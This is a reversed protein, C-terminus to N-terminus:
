SLIRISIMNIINENTQADPTDLPLMNEKAENRQISVSDNCQFLNLPRRDPRTASNFISEPSLHVLFERFLLEENCNYSQSEM